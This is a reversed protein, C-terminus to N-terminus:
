SRLTFLKEISLKSGGIIGNSSLSSKIQKEWICEFDIPAQYESVFIKHGEKSKIRVWKWFLDSNFKNDKYETTDRYPPDCYIISNTPLVLKNYPLNQFIVGKLKPIQKNINKIAEQQYNGYSGSKILTNGAYGGFYKGKFSCNFGAWGVLAPKYDLKNDKIKNYEDKTIENPILNGDILAKWMEILEHHIDNAIRNGSIECISNMGGAFPEVYFQEEKKGKLIIPLIEKIIRSKSGMYKM